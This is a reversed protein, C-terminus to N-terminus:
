MMVYVANEGLPGAYRQGCRFIEEVPLTKAQCQESWTGANSQIMNVIFVGAEKRDGNRIWGTV